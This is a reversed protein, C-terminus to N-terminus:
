RVVPTVVDLGVGCMNKNRVLRMYGNEGWGTGWSNRIIWFPKDTAGYGVIAVAHDIVDPVCGGFSTTAPDFVGESYYKFGFFASNISTSAVGNAYIYAMLETENSTFNFGVAPRFWGLTREVTKSPDYRCNQDRERYPYDYEGIWQGKQHAIVYDFPDTIRGGQCGFSETGCDILNQESLVLLEGTANAWQTEQAAVASFAWCAGCTGQNKIPNVVGRSRWDWEDPVPWPLPPRPDGLVLKTTPLLGTRARLESETLCALHNLGLSFGAKIPDHAAIQRLTTVFISFRHAYETGSYMQGHKRMWDVFLKEEHATPVECAALALLGIM